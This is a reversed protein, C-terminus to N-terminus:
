SKWNFNISFQHFMNQQYFGTAYRVNLKKLLVGLGLTFGNLGNTVNYGNLDKRRLFNYGGTVEIKEAIYIQTSLVLHTLIKNAVSSNQQDNGESSNFTTDNYYINFQQLHHATLSFQIPAKALRKTIGAQLDFPLEEKTGSGDYTKLQTGMNKVVVSAQLGNSSDYYALGFDLAIGSSKYQSYNSSIFKFTAGYWWNDKYQRSASLQVVYDNPHFSGLINGAPDTQPLTGYDFYNVGFAINTEAKNLHFASVLSYNKIGALFDNFSANVQGTMDDRLLAPNHFSLGADNTINSVNIGGLASLQATNPQNVFNFVSSGGLTQSSAPLLQAILLCFFLFRKMSFQLYLLKMCITFLSRYVTLRLYNYFRRDTDNM